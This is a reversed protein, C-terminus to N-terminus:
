LCGFHRIPLCFFFNQRWNRSKWNYFFWIALCRLIWQLTAPGSKLITLIPARRSTPARVVSLFSFRFAVLGCHKHPTSLGRREPVCPGVCAVSIACTSVTNVIWAFDSTLEIGAHTAPPSPLSGALFLFEAMHPTQVHPLPFPDTTSSSVVILLCDTFLSCQVTQQTPTRATRRPLEGSDHSHQFCPTSISDLCPVGLLYGQCQVRM